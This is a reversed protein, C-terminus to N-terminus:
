RVEIFILDLSFTPMTPEDKEPGIQLQPWHILQSPLHFPRKGPDPPLGETKLEPNNKYIQLPHLPEGTDM